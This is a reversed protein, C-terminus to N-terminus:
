QPSNKLLERQRDLAQSARQMTEAGLQQEETLSAKQKDLRDSLNVFQQRVNNDTIADILSRLHFRFDNLRKLQQDQASAIDAGIAAILTATPLTEVPDAAADATFDAGDVDPAVIVTGVPLKKALAQGALDLQPNAKALQKGINTYNLGPKTIVYLKRTLDDLTQEGQFRYVRM